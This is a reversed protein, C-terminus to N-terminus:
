STLQYLFFETNFLKTLQSYTLKLISEVGVAFSIHPIIMTLYNLKKVLRMYKNPKCIVGRSKSTERQTWVLILQNVILSRRRKWSISFMNESFYCRNRAVSYSWDWSFLLISGSVIKSRDQVFFPDQARNLDYPTLLVM